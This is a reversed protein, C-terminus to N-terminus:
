GGVPAGAERLVTRAHGIYYLPGGEAQYYRESIAARADKLETMTADAANALVENARARSIMGHKVLLKLDAEYKAYHYDVTAAQKGDVAKAYLAQREAEINFATRLKKPLRGDELEVGPAVKAWEYFLSREEFVKIAARKGPPLGALYDDRARKEAVKPNLPFPAISGLGQRLLIDRKSRPRLQRTQTTPNGADQWAKLDRVLPIQEKLQGAYRGLMGGELKRGTYSDRGVLSEALAALAPQMAGVPENERQKGLGFASGIMRAQELPSSLPSVPGTNVALPLEGVGPIDETGIQVAGELYQPRPGLKDSKAQAADSLAALVATQYPHDLPFNLAYRSSAKIFPYIFLVRAVTAREIPSLLEYDYAADRARLAVDMRMEAHKPNLILDRMQAPTSFGRRAAEYRGALRRTTVDTVRGLANAQARSVRTPRLKDIGAATSALRGASPESFMAVAGGEGLIADFEALADKGMEKYFRPHQATQRMTTTLFRPGQQIGLLIYNALVNPPIYGVGGGTSYLIISRMAATIERGAHQAARVQWHPSVPATPRGTESLRKFIADPVWVVGDMTAGAEVGLGEPASEVTEYKRMERAYVLREDRSLVQGDIQRQTLRQLTENEGPTLRRTKVPVWKTLVTDAPRVETGASVLREHLRTAESYREMAAGSRAIAQVTNHPYRAALLNGGTFTKMSRTVDPGKNPVAGTRSIFPRGIFGRAPPNGYPVYARGKRPAQAGVLKGGEAARAAAQAEAQARVLEAERAGDRAARVARDLASRRQGRAAEARVAAMRARGEQAIGAARKAEKAARGEALAQKRAAVTEAGEGAVKVESGYGSPKVSFAADEINRSRLSRLSDLEDIRRAVERLMPDKSKRATDYLLIEARRATSARGSVAGENPNVKYAQNEIPDGGAINYSGKRNRARDYESLQHTPSKGQPRSPLDMARASPDAAHLYSRIPKVHREIQAELEAIRVDVQAPTREVARVGEKVPKATRRLVTAAGRQAAAAEREAKSFTTAARFAENRAKTEVDSLRNAQRSFERAEKKAARVIARESSRGEALITKAAKDAQQRSVFRAGAVVAAPADRRTQLGKEEILGHEVAQRERKRTVGIARAAVGRLGEADAGKRVIRRPAAFSKSITVDGKAGVGLYRDAATLLGVERALRRRDAPKAVALQERATALRDAIPTNELYARLAVQQPTTLKRGKRQLATRKAQAQAEEIVRNRSSFQGVKKALPGVDGREAKAVARKDAAKQAVQRLPARSYLGQGKLEGFKLVRTTPAPRRLLGGGEEPHRTLASRLAAGKSGGAAATEAAASKAAGGRLFASAGGSLVVSANIVTDVPSKLPDKATEVGSKGLAKLIGTTRPAGMEPETWLVKREVGTRALAAALLDQPVAKGMEALAQPSTFIIQGLRDFNKGGALGATETKARKALATQVPKAASGEDPTQFLRAYAARKDREKQRRKSADAKHQNAAVTKAVKRREAATMPTDRVREAM